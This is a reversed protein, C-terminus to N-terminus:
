RWPQWWPPRAIRSPPSTEGGKEAAVLDLRAQLGAAHARWHAADAAASDARTREATLQDRILAVLDALAAPTAPLIGDPTDRIPTPQRPELPAVSTGRRVAYLEDTDIALERQNIASRRATLRGSDLWRRITRSDVGVLRAAHAATVTDGM